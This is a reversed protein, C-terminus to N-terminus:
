VFKYFVETTLIFSGKMPGVRISITDYLIIFNYILINSSKWLQFFILLDKQLFRTPVWESISPIM